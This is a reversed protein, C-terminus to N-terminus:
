GWINNSGNVLVGYSANVGVSGATVTISSGNQLNIRGGTQDFYAGVARTTASLSNAIITAGDTNITAAGLANLAYGGSAGNAGAVMTVTTGTLNVVSNLVLAQVAISNFANNTTISGGTMNLVGGNGAAVLTLSGSRSSSVSVNIASLVSGSFNSTLGNVIGAGSISGGNITLQGGQQASAGTVIQSAANLASGTITVNSLTMQSGAGSSLLGLKSGTGGGSSVAINITDGTVTSGGLARIGVLDQGSTTTSANVTVNNLVGTSTGEISIGVPGTGGTGSASVTLSSNSLLLQGGAAARAGYITAGATPVTTVTAGTLNVVSNAGTVFM